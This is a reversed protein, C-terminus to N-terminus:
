SHFGILHPFHSFSPCLSSPRVNSLIALSYTHEAELFFWDGLALRHEASVRVTLLKTLLFASSTDLVRSVFDDTHPLRAAPPSSPHYPKTPVLGGDQPDLHDPLPTNSGRERDCAALRTLIPSWWVYIFM